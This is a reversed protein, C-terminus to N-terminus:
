LKKLYVHYKSYKDITNLSLFDVTVGLLIINLAEIECAHGYWHRGIVIKQVITMSENLILFEKIILM